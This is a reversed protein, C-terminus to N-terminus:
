HKHNKKTKHTYEYICYQTRAAEAYRIFSYIFVSDNDIQM